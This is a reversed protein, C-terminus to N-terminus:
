VLHGLVDLAGRRLGALPEGVVERRHLIAELVEVFQHHDRRVQTRDRAALSHRASQVEGTVPELLGPITVGHKALWRAGIRGRRDGHFDCHRDDTRAPAEEAHEGPPQIELADLLQELLLDRARLRAHDDHEGISPHDYRSSARERRKRLHGQTRQLASLAGGHGVIRRVPEGDDPNTGDDLADLPDGNRLNGGSHRVAPDALQPVRGNQEHHDQQRHHAREGVRESQQDHVREVPECERGIAHGTAVEVHIHRRGAATLQQM